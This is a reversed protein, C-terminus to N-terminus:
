KLKCNTKVTIGGSSQTGNATFLNKYTDSINDAEHDCVASAEKKTMKRIMPKTESVHYANNYSSPDTVTTSCSCDYKKRCSIFLLPM